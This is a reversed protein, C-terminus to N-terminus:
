PAKKNGRLAQWRLREMEAHAAKDKGHLWANVSQGPKPGNSPLRTVKPEEM